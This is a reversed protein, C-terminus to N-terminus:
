CRALARSEPGPRARVLRGTRGGPGTLEDHAAVIDSVM